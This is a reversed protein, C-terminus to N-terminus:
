KELRVKADPKLTHQELTYNSNFLEKVDRWIEDAKPSGVHNKIIKFVEISDYSSQRNSM